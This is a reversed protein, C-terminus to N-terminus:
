ENVSAADDLARAAWAELSSGSREAANRWREARDSAVVLRVAGGLAPAARPGLAARTRRRLENRSWGNSAALELFRDQDPQPLRCVEAHHQFSLDDRRRSPEFRRAVASYNRLTQYELGTAAMAEKYRSGYKFRGFALWDGLWWSVANAHRDMKRGMERWAEFPLLPHFEAHTATLAVDGHRVPL